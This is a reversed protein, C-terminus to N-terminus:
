QNFLCLEVLAPKAESNLSRHVNFNSLGMANEEEGWNIPNPIQYAWASCVQLSYDLEKVSLKESCGLKFLKPLSIGLYFSLLEV